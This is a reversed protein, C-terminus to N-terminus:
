LRTSIPIVNKHYVADIATTDGQSLKVILDRRQWATAVIRVNTDFSFTSAQHDVSIDISKNCFFCLGPSTEQVSSFCLRKKVPTLPLTSKCQTRVSKESRSCARTVERKSCKKFCSAHWKANNKM